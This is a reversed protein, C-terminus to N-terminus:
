GGPGDVMLFSAVHELDDRQEKVIFNLLRRLSLM